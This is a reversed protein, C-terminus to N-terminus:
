VLAEYDGLAGSLSQAVRDADPVRTPDAMIGVDLREANRRSTINLFRGSGIIPVPYNAVLPFGAYRLQEAPGPVNSVSINGPLITEGAQGGFRARRDRAGYPREPQDLVAEDLTSRALERRMEAQIARLRAIPDAIDTAIHPHLAVIRNGYAGHEPKRYSRASNVVIPAAPLDDLDLLLRRVAASCLALFLDNITGGLAAAVRKVRAFDLQVTAYAREPGIAGGMRLAPTRPRRTAPDDRLAKLAALAAERDNRHRERLAAERAFREDALRRWEEEPPPVADMARPPVALAADSLLRLITQVGIGDALAHHIQVFLAAGGGAIEEYVHIRYPASALDLRAMARLAVDARLRAAIWPEASPVSLVHRDSAAVDVWVDSDYGDPAEVLRCQLPTAPLREALHRRIDGPFRGRAEEPVDLVLLAGIHLPSADTEALVMFHDDPRLRSVGPTLVDESLPGTV